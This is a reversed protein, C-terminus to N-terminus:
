SCVREVDAQTPMGPQAGERSAAIAGAACAFSLAEAIPRQQSVQVAFAAAFADGAATTDVVTVTPPKAHHLNGNQDCCVVGREGLTVISHKVGLACLKKAAAEAEAVSNVPLGTLLSAETENPCAYDVNLLEAPFSELAPAPDLIVPVNHKKALAIAALVTELPVELQLMLISADAFASECTHIDDPTLRGNAGPIVTICNQGSDEVNIIAVGSSCDETQLLHDVSVCNEALNNRLTSSFGDDGLRGILSVNANLRAAGVAQNAGKGGSIEHLSTGFLTEGPLPLRSCRAVLDMNISGVVLINPRAAATDPKM